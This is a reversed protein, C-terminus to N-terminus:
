GRQFFAMKSDNFFQQKITMFLKKEIYFMRFKIEPRIKVSFFFHFFICKKKGFTHTLGKPFTGNQPRQFINNKYDFLTKKRDLVNNFRIDLRTKVSFLFQFFTFKKKGFAHTLGKPFTCNTPSPFIKDKDLVNNFRIDLRIKVSFM